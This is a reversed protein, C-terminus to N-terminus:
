HHSTLTLHLRMGLHAEKAVFACFHAAEHSTPVALHMMLTLLIMMSRHVYSMLLMGSVYHYSCLKTNVKCGGLAADYSPM